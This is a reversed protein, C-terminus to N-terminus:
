GTADKDKEEKVKHIVVDKAEGNGVFTPAIWNVKIETRGKGVWYTQWHACRFHPIPSKRKSESGEGTSGNESRVYQKRFENGYRVGVDQIRVESWKNRIKNGYGRYTNVTLPSESLQPEDISLYAVLNLAFLYVDQRSLKSNNLKDIVDLGHEPMCADPIFADYTPFSYNAFTDSIIVGQEDYEFGIYLSYFLLEPTIIYFAFYVVEKGNRIYPKIYIFVGEIAEFRDCESLDIYFTHYPLHHIMNKTLCPKNKTHLLADAFVPDPKFVQKAKSWEELLVSFLLHDNIEASMNVKELVEKPHIEMACGVFMKALNDFLEVDANHNCLFTEIYKDVTLKDANKIRLNCCLRKIDAFQLHNIQVQKLMELPAYQM